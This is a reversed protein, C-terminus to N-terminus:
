EGKSEVKNSILLMNEIQENTLNEVKIKAYKRELTKRYYQAILEPTELYYVVRGWGTKDGKAYFGYSDRQERDFRIEYTNGSGYNDEVIAQKDTVRKITFRQLGNGFRENSYIRMGVELKM